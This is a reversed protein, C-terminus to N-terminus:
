SRAILTRDVFVPPLNPALDVDFHIRDALVTRYPDITERVLDPVDVPSPKAAPSSAFSSFEFAIQRLLKVQELITAVCEDLVSGLSEGRDAHVRRLYEANLQIPTLPNKIE